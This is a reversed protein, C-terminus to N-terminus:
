ISYLFLLVCIHFGYTMLGDVIHDGDPGMHQM